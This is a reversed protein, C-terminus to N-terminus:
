IVKLFIDHEEISNINICPESQTSIDISEISIFLNDFKLDIKYVYNNYFVKPIYKNNVIEILLDNIDDNSIFLLKIVSNIKDKSIENFVSKRNNFTKVYSIIDKLGNSLIFKFKNVTSEENDNIYYKNSVKINESINIKKLSLLKDTLEFVHSDKILIKLVQYNTPKKDPKYEHVEKMYQNYVVFGLKYKEFFPMVDNISAGINDEKDEINLLKCL